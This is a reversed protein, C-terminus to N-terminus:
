VGNDDVGTIYSAFVRRIKAADNDDIFLFPRKPTGKVSRAFIKRGNMMFVLFRGSKPRIPGNGAYIGTGNQMLEGINYKGDYTRLNTGVRLGDPVDQLYSASDGITLSRMLAGTRFLLSGQSNTEGNPGTAAPAWDGNGKSRIRMQASALPVIAARLYAPGLDKLRAVQGAIKDRFARSNSLSGTIM